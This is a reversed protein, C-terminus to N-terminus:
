VKYEKTNVAKLFHGFKSDVWSIEKFFSRLNRPEISTKRIEKEKRKRWCFTFKGLLKTGPSTSFLAM